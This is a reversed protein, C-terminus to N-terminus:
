HTLEHDGRAHGQLLKKETLKQRLKSDTHNNGSMVPPISKDQFINGLHRLLRTGALVLSPNRLEEMHDLFYKAYENGHSAAATFYYIAKEKDKLVEKGLLYVKGLTYQAFQNGQEASATLWRLAADVNKPIREEALYLKGLRYQAHPNSREAAYTLWYLAKEMDKPTEAGDVLLKGLAYAAYHNESGAANQFLSIAKQIDKEIHIGDRYMKALQYQALANGDKAAQNMWEIAEKIQYPDPTNDMLYLMSLHYQAHSNGLRAAKEFYERALEVNKNTGTGTLLMWGLRYQLKDDKGQRELDLFGLFAEKMHVEALVSDKQTGEGNKLMKALEYHAYPFGKLAARAYRRYAETLNQPVGQGRHLLGALSYLAYKHNKSCAKRFWLAAKVYDQETGLGAANMKGIRYELYASEKEKELTIFGDLAKEYWHGAFETDPECGLGDKLMRALDYMALVNGCEAEQMFLEGAKSFDQAVEDGGFLHQRALMYEENWAVHLKKPEDNSYMNDEPETSSNEDELADDWDSPPDDDIRSEYDLTDSVDDLGLSERIIMNKISQFEKQKSLPLLEPLDDKYTQLIESQLKWWKQYCESVLPNEALKDVIQDVKKKVPAKLYAYVRKGSVDKLQESLQLMLEEVVPGEHIGSQMRQILTNLSDRTQEVVESRYGTKQEYIATLDQRFIDKAIASKIEWIGKKTLYGGKPSSSYAVMHVHPHHGADHFAACWRFEDLPIKMSRSITDRHTLLLDRWAEAKDFGLREADERRISFIHTWVNGKHESVEQQIAALSPNREDTFLGHEALKQVGPRTAIYGIYTESHRWVELNAELAMYILESANGRTSAAVYDEFEFLEKMDPFDLTLQEILKQQKITSPLNKSSDSIKQVGERTAIYRIYGGVNKEDGQKIYPSKLILRPM